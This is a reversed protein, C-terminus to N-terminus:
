AQSRETVHNLENVAREIRAKILADLDNADAIEKETFMASTSRRFGARDKPGLLSVFRAGRGLNSAIRFDLENPIHKRVADYFLSM